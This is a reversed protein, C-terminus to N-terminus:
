AMALIWLLGNLSTESLYFLNPVDSISWINLITDIKRELFVSLRVVKFVTRILEGSGFASQHAELTPLGRDDTHTYTHIDVNEFMKEESVM